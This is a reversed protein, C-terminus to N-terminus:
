RKGVMENIYEYVNMMPQEDIYEKFKEPQQVPFDKEIDLEKCFELKKDTKLTVTFVLYHKVSYRTHMVEPVCSVSEISKFSIVRKRHKRCVAIGNQGCMIGGDLSSLKVRLLVAGLIAFIFMLGEFEYKYDPIFCALAGLIIMGGFLVALGFATWKNLSSKEYDFECKM